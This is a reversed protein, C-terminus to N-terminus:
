VSENFAVSRAFIRTPPNDPDINKDLATYYHLLQIVIYFLISLINESGDPLIVCNALPVAKRCEAELSFPAFIIIERQMQSASEIIELIRQKKKCNNVLFVTYQEPSPAVTEIHAFEEIQYIDSRWRLVEKTKAKAYYVAPYNSGYGVFTFASTENIGKSYDKWAVSEEIVKASMNVLEDVMKKIDDKSKDALALALMLSALASLTIVKTRPAKWEGAHIPIIMDSCKAAPSYTDNTICVISIRNEKALEILEMIMKSKGKASFVVIIDQESMMSRDENVLNFPEECIADFGTLHNIYEKCLLANSYADGCGTLIIKRPNNALMQKAIDSICEYELNYLMKFLDPQQKIEEYLKYM